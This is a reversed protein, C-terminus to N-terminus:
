GTCGTDLYLQGQYTFHAALIAELSHSVRVEPVEQGEDQAPQEQVPERAAPPVEEGAPERVGAEHPVEPSSGTSSPDLNFYALNLQFM